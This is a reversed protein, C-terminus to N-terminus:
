SSRECSVALGATAPEIGTNASYQRADIVGRHPPLPPGTLRPWGSPGTFALKAQSPSKAVCALLSCLMKSGSVAGKCQFQLNGPAWCCGARAAAHRRSPHCV